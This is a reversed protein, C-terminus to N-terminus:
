DVDWLVIQGKEGGAAATLGDPAVAVATIKGVRWNLVGVSRGSAVEWCRVTGDQGVTFLRTGDPTFAADNVRAEHGALVATPEAEGPVLLLCQKGAVAALLPRDPAFVLRRTRTAPPLFEATPEEAPFQHFRVLPEGGPGGSLAMWKQDSGFAIAAAFHDVAFARRSGPSSYEEIHLSFRWEGGARAQMGGGVVLTNGNPTFALGFVHNCKAPVGQWELDDRDSPLTACSILDRGGPRAYASYALALRTHTPAIAAHEADLPVIREPKGTTVDLWVTAGVHDEGQSTIVALRRGDPSFSLSHVSKCQAVKFTRM